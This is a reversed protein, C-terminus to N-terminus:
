LSQFNFVGPQLSDSNDSIGMPNGDPQSLQDYNMMSDQKNGAQQTMFCMQDGDSNEQDFGM